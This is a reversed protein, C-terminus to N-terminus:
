ASPPPNATPLDQNRSCFAGALAGALAACAIDTRLARDGLTLPKFDAKFLLDLEFDTWGGEPGVAVLPLPAGPAPNQSFGTVACGDGGLRPHAVFKPADAYDRAVEDEVFPRFARRVLVEPLTTTSAQELGELLLPVYADPALWHTDFYFKEVKAANVLIIRRVGLSALPAWLRHLVKPRPVALVIDFWPAPPNRTLHPAELTVKGDAIEAVTATGVKGGEVGVRIANGPAPHLVDAIHAARRDALVIRRGDAVEKRSLIVLNM